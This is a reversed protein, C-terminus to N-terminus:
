VLNNRKDGILVRRPLLAVNPERDNASPDVSILAIHQCDLWRYLSHSASCLEITNHDAVLPQWVLNESEGANYWAATIDVGGSSGLSCRTEGNLDTMRRVVDCAFRWYRPIGKCRQDAAFFPLRIPAM